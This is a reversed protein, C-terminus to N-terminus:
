KGRVAMDYAPVSPARGSSTCCREFHFGCYSSGQRTPQGCFQYPAAAQDDRPYRCDGPELEALWLGLFPKVKTPVEVGEILIGEVAQPTERRRRRVSRHHPPTSDAYDTHGRHLLGLRYLKGLITSRTLGRLAAIEAASRGELTWMRTIAAVLEDTWTVM